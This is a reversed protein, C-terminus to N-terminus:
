DKLDKVKKKIIVSVTKSCKKIIAKVGHIVAISQGHMILKTAASFLHAIATEWLVAHSSGWLEAHSSGRLVIRCPAKKITLWVNKDM